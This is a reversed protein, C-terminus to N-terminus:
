RIEEILWAVHGHRKCLCFIHYIRVVILLNKYNLDFIEIHIGGKFIAYIACYWILESLVM